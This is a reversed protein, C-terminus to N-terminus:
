IRFPQLDFVSFNQASIFDCISKLFFIQSRLPKLHHRKLETQPWVPFCLSCTVRSVVPCVATQLEAGATQWQGSQDKLCSSPSPKNSVVNRETPVPKRLCSTILETFLCSINGAGVCVKNKDELMCVSGTQEFQSSSCPPPKFWTFWNFFVSAQSYWLSLKMQQRQRRGHEPRQVKDPGRATSQCTIFSGPQQLWCPWRLCLCSSSVKSDFISFCGILHCLCRWM